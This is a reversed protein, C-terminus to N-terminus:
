QFSHGYTVETQSHFSALHKKYGQQLGQQRSDTVDQGSVTRVFSTRVGVEFSEDAGSEVFPFEDRPEPKDEFILVDQFLIICRPAVHNFCTLFKERFIKATRILINNVRHM